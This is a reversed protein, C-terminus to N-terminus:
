RPRLVSLGRGSRRGPCGGRGGRHAQPATRFLPRPYQRPYPRPCPVMMGGGSYYGEIFAKVTLNVGAPTGVGFTTLSQSSCGNSSFVTIFGTTAGVPVVATITTSNVVTFTIAFTNNFRVQNVGTFGTGTITITSGVPSVAPTFSTISPGQIVTIPKTASRQCGNGVGYTYTINHM